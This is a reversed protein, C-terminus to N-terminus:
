GAELRIEVHRLRLPYTALLRSNLIEALDKLSLPKSGTKRAFEVDVTIETIEGLGLAFNILKNLLEHTGGKASILVSSGSSESKVLADVHSSYNYDKGELERMAELFAKIGSITRREVPGTYELRISIEEVVRDLAGSRLIEERLQYPTLDEVELRLNVPSPPPKPEPPEEGGEGTEGGERGECQWTKEEPNWVPNRCGEPPKPVCKLGEGSELVSCAERAEPSSCPALTVGEQALPPRVMCKPGSSTLAVLRGSEVLDAIREVVKNEVELLIVSSPDETFAAVVEDLSLPRRLASYRRLIVDRMLYEPSVDKVLKGVGLLAEEVSKCLGERATASSSKLSIGGFVISGDPRADLPYYLKSYLASIDSRLEKVLKDRMRNLEDVDERDLGYYQMQEPSLLRSIATLRAITEILTEYLREDPILYLVTNRHRRYVGGAQSYTSFRQLLEDLKSGGAAVDPDEPDLLVLKVRTSDEIDGPHRPWVVVKCWRVPKAIRDLESRLKDRVYERSKKIIENALRKVLAYVNARTKVMYLPEGHRTSRHIHAASEVLYDLVQRTLQPTVGRIPTASGLAVEEASSPKGAASRVLVASYVLSAIPPMGERTHHEDAEEVVEIDHSVARRLSRLDENRSLLEDLIERKTADVDGLLVLDYADGKRLRWHLTWAMLRLIDRTGQFEPIEALEKYLVDVLYPHFPYSKVIRTEYETRAAESPFFASEKSYFDAYERAVSRAVDPDVERLLAAKLVAAADRYGVISSTSAVRKVSSLLGLIRKTEEVYGYQQPTAVALVAYNSNAVAVALNQLFMQLGDAESRISEDRSLELNRLYMALEDILIVPRVGAEEIAALLRGIEEHGPVLERYRRIRQLASAGLGASRALEELIFTWANPAGYRERLTIPDVASGDFVAVASRINVPGEVGVERLFERLRRSKLAESFRAALHYIALLTHSKGGGFGTHLLVVPEYPGGRLLRKLVTGLVQRLGESFYTRDFFKVPDRYREDVCEYGGSSCGYHVYWLQVVFSAGTIRGERIEEFAVWGARGSSM